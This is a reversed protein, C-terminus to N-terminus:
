KSSESAAGEIAAFAPKPHGDRDFLTPYNTRGRIPWNNLWSDADTVGWFTVRAIADHHKTFVSFLDAYRDALAQQVHAPLGNVYPNLRKEPRVSLSVEATQSSTARPLVDVDLESINIKVGLKQFAAITADEQQPTPSSLSVHCQLGIATIPVGQSKLKTILAIAGARKAENTDLSYDNYTLQAAPDAEHAYEFAKAIYDDGIIQLWLSQRLAGTEDLAENVVDWSQIRGKYRSVVTQIHDRMRKLLTDRDVLAGTRDRFVWAPTQNHWVLTHGVILMHNAEGFAVYRDAREFSYGGPFPHISEWKMANEPSISNFEEQVISAGRKDYGAVQADNVAVGVPFNQKFAKKLPVQGRLWPALAIVCVSAIVRQLRSVIMRGGPRMHLHNGGRARRYFQLDEWLLSTGHAARSCSAM